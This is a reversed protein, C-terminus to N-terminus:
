VCLTRAPRCAYVCQLDTRMFVVCVSVCEYSVWALECACRCVCQLSECAAILSLPPKGTLPPFSAFVPLLRFSPTSSPPFSSPYSLTSVPALTVASLHTHPIAFPPPTLSRPLPLYRTRLSPANCIGCILRKLSVCVTCAHVWQVQNLEGKENEFVRRDSYHRAEQECVRM